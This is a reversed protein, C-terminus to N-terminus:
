DDLLVVDYEKRVSNFCKIRRGRKVADKLDSITVLGEKMHGVELCEQRYVGPLLGCEAKPTIWQGDGDQIAINAISTETVQGFKNYLIVDFPINEKSAEGGHWDCGVRARAEDYVRRQTSKNRIFPSDTHIAQTDLKVPLARPGTDALRAPTSPLPTSQVTLSGGSSLLCRVRQPGKDRPVRQSLEIIIEEREPVEGFLRGETAECFYDASACLRDMHRTLLYFGDKLTWLITELLEFRACAPDFSGQSVEDEM